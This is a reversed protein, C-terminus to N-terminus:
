QGPWGPWPGVYDEPIRTTAPPGPKGFVVVPQGHSDYVSAYGNPCKPTPEMIRIMDANGTAGPRQYVAGKGNDSTRGAWGEPLDYTTGRSTTVFTKGTSSAVDGATEAAVGTAVVIQSQLVPPGRGQGARVHESVGVATITEPASARVRNGADLLTHASATGTPFLLVGVAALVALLWAGVRTLSRLPRGPRRPSTVPRLRAWCRTV